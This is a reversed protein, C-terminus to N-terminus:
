EEKLKLDLDKPEQKKYVTLLDPHQNRVGHRM